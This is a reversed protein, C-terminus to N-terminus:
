GTGKLRDLGPLGETGVHLHLNEVNNIVVQAGPVPLQLTQPAALEPMVLEVEEDVEEETPPLKVDRHQALDALHQVWRDTGFIVEVHRQAAADVIVQDPQMDPLALVAIIYVKRHFQRQIAQPISMAATWAQFAPSPKRHRGEETILYWEGRELLYHGGKVEVAYRGVGELWVPFDVQRGHPLIRAEYLARGPFDSDALLEYIQHEARRMPMDMRDPPFAPEIRM